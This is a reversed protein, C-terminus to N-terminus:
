HNGPKDSEESDKAGVSKCVQLFIQIEISYRYLQGYVAPNQCNTMVELGQLQKVDGTGINMKKFSGDSRIWYMCISM